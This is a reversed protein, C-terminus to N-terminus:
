IVAFQAATLDQPKNSLTAFVQSTGTGKGSADYSLAGTGPNYVLFDEGGVAAQTSPRFHNALSPKGALLTFVSDDLALPDDQGHDMGGLLDALGGLLGLAM